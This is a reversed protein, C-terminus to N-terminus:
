SNKFVKKAGLEPLSDPRAYSWIADALEAKNHQGLAVRMTQLCTARQTAREPSRVLFVDSQGGRGLRKIEEWQQIQDVTEAIQRRSPRYTAMVRDWETEPDAMSIAAESIRFSTVEWTPSNHSSFVRFDLALYLGLKLDSADFTNNPFLRNV